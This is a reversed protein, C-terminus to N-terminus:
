LMALVFLGGGFGSEGESLAELFFAVVVHGEFVEGGGAADSLEGDGLDFDTPAVDAHVVHM